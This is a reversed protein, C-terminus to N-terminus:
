SSPISSIEGAFPSSKRSRVGVPSVLTHGFATYKHTTIPTNTPLVGISFPLGAVEISLVLSLHTSLEPLCKLRSSPIVSPSPLTVTAANRSNHSSSIFSTTLLRVHSLWSDITRRCMLGAIPVLFSAFSNGLSTCPIYLLLPSQRLTCTVRLRAKFSATVQCYM